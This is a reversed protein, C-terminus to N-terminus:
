FIIKFIYLSNKHKLLESKINLKKIQSEFLSSNETLIIAKNSTQKIEIITHNLEEASNVLLLERGAYYSALSVNRGGFQIIKSNIGALNSAEIAMTKYPSADNFYISMLPILILYSLLASAFLTFFAMKYRKTLFAIGSILMGSSIISLFPLVIPRFGAQQEPFNIILYLTAVSLLPLVFFMNIYTGWRIINLNKGTRFFDDWTKAILIALAPFSPLIYRIIKNGLSTSFLIFIVVVYILPLMSFNKREKIFHIVSPYIYGSWPVATILILLFYSYFDYQLTTQENSPITNGIVDIPHFYRLITSSFMKDLFPTGIVAFEAIFWPLVIVFFTLFAIPLYLYYTKASFKLLRNESLLYFFAIFFPLILGIPGKTLVGLASFAFSLYLAWPKKDQYFVLFLYISLLIFFTLPIDQLPSRAQYFFQALTMLILCAYIGVKKGYLRNALLYTLYIIAVAILGHFFSIAFENFGFLKFGLTFLWFILPPKDIINFSNTLTYKPTLFDNSIIMNKSITAYFATDGDTIPIREICFFYLFFAVLILILLPFKYSTM